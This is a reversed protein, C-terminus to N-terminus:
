KYPFCWQKDSSVKWASNAKIKIRLTAGNADVNEFTSESLTLPSSDTDSDSCNIFLLLLPLLFILRTKM